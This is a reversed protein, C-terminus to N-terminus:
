TPPPRLRYSGRGDSEILSRWNKQAKFLDSMRLSRSGAQELVGKGSLWPNDGSAVEHLQAVVRAQIPGLMFEHSGCSVHRYDPSHKFGKAPEAALESLWNPPDEVNLPVAAPEFFEANNFVHGLGAIDDLDYGIELGDWLSPRIPERGLAGNPIGSAVLAGAKLRAVFAKVLAERRREQELTMSRPNADKIEAYAQPDSWRALAEEPPLGKKSRGPPLAM